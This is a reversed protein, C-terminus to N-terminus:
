DARRRRFMATGAAILALLGSSPEPMAATVLLPQLGFVMDFTQKQSAPALEQRYYAGGAYGNGSFGIWEYAYGSSSAGATALVFAYGKNAQLPVNEVDFIAYNVTGNIISETVSHTQAQSFLSTGSPLSAGNPDAVEFLDVTITYGASGPQDNNYKIWIKDLVFADATTFAQANRRNNAFRQLSGTGSTLTAVAMPVGQDTWSQGQYTVPIAVAKADVPAGAIVILYIGVAIFTKQV